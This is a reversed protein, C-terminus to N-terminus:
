EGYILTLFIVHDIRATIDLILGDKTEAHFDFVTKDKSINGLVERDFGKTQVMECYSSIAKPSIDELALSLEGDYDKANNVYYTFNFEPLLKMGESEFKTGGYQTSIGDADTAVLETDSVKDVSLGDQVLLKELQTIRDIRAQKVEDTPEKSEFFPFENQQIEQTYSASDDSSEPTEAKEESQVEDAPTDIVIDADDKVGCSCSLATTLALALCLLM